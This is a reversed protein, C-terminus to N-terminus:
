ASGPHAAPAQSRPRRTQRGKGSAAGASCSRTATVCCRGSSAGIAGMAREVPHRLLAVIRFREPLRPPAAKLLRPRPHARPGAVHQQQPRRPPSRDCRLGSALPAVGHGVRASGLPPHKGGVVVLRVRRSDLGERAVLRSVGGPFRARRPRCPRRAAASPSDRRRGAARCAAAPSGFGGDGQRLGRRGRRSPAPPSAIRSAPGGDSALGGPAPSRKRHWAGRSWASGSRPRM